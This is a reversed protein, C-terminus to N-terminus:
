TTAPVTTAEGAAGGTVGDSAMSIVFPYLASGSLVDLFDAIWARPMVATSTDPNTVTVDYLAGAPLAPTQGTIQTPSIVVVNTALLNPGGFNVTAGTQFLQGTLTFPDGALAAGHHPRDRLPEEALVRLNGSQDTATATIWADADLAIPFTVDFAVNGGSDTTKDLFGIWTQGQLFDRPHVPSPSAYFDITYNASAASNLTGVIRTTPFGVTTLM